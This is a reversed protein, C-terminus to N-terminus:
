NFPEGLTSLSPKGTARGPRTFYYSFAGPMSFRGLFEYAEERIHHSYNLGPHHVLRFTFHAKSASM